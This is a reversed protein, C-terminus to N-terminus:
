EYKYSMFLNHVASVCYLRVFPLGTCLRCTELVSLVDLDGQQNCACNIATRAPTDIRHSGSQTTHTRRQPEGQLQINPSVHSSERQRCFPLFHAKITIWGVSFSLGLKIKKLKKNKEMFLNATRCM